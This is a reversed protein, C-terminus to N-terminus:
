FILNRKSRLTNYEISFATTISPISRIKNILDDVRKKNEIFDIRLLYNVEKKEPIFYKTIQTVQNNQSFLDQSVEEKESFKNETNYKNSILHWEEMEDVNEYIFHSFYSLENKSKNQVDIDTECRVFYTEIVNNLHYALEYDDLITNIGIVSFDFEVELEM